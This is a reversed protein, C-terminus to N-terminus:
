KGRPIARKSTWYGLPQLGCFYRSCASAHKAHTETAIRGRAKKWASEKASLERAARATADKVTSAMRAREADMEQM